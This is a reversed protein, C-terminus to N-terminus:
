LTSSIAFIRGDAGQSLVRTETLRGLVAECTQRDLGWLRQAQAVTLRLGPVEQFEARVRHLLADDLPFLTASM